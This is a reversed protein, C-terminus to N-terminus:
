EAKDSVHPEVTKKDLHGQQKQGHGQDETCLPSQLWTRGPGLQLYTLNKFHTIKLTAVHTGWM